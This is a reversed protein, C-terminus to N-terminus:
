KTCLKELKEKRMYKVDLVFHNYYDSNEDFWGEDDDIRYSNKFIELVTYIRGVILRDHKYGRTTNKICLLKDGVKYM